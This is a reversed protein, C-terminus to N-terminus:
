RPTLVYARACGFTHTSALMPGLAKTLNAHHGCDSVLVRAGTGAVFSQAATPHMHGFFLRNARKSQVPYNRSWYGNGVWVARGTQSPIVSTFPTPALVGGPPAHHTVWRLAAVDDHPLYYQVLPKDFTRVLKRADSVMGPITLLGVAVWVVIAPLRLRQFGRVALVSFPFALGQYAHPPFSDNLFYNIFTAAIWLLLAQEIMEGRPRRLGPAAILALPGFGVILTIAPARRTAEFISALSWAPDAHSLVYYYLLPLAAAIALAALTM